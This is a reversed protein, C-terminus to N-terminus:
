AGIIAGPAGSPVVAWPWFAHKYAVGSRTWVLPRTVEGSDNSGCDGQCLLSRGM